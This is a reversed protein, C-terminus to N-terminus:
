RTAAKKNREWASIPQLEKLVFPYKGTKARYAEIPGDFLMAVGNPEAVQRESWKYSGAVALVLLFATAYMM